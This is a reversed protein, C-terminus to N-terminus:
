GVEDILGLKYAEEASVIRDFPGSLGEIVKRSVNARECLADHYRADWHETQAIRRKLDTIFDGDSALQTEHFLQIDVKGQIRHDGAQVLLTAISGAIGRVKTTVYHGGGARDSMSYLESYIASGDIVSGGLSNIIFEIDCEPDEASATHLERLVEGAMEETVEGECYVRRLVTM